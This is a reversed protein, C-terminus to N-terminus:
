HPTLSRRLWILPVIESRDHIRVVALDRDLGRLEVLLDHWADPRRM